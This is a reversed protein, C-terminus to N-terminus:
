RGKVKEAAREEADLIADLAACAIDVDDISLTQHLETLTAKDL